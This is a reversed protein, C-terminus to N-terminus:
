HDSTDTKQEPKLEGAFDGDAQQLDLNGTWDDPEQQQKGPQLHAREGVEPSGLGNVFRSDNLDRGGKQAIEGDQEHRRTDAHHFVKVQEGAMAGGDQEDHDRGGQRRQRDCGKGKRSRL